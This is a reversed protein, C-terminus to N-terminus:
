EYSIHNLLKNIMSTKLTQDDRFQKNYYAERETKYADLKEEYRRSEKSSAKDFQSLLERRKDEVSQACDAKVKNLEQANHKLISQARKENAKARNLSNNLSTSREEFITNLKPLFTKSLALYLGVFTLTLWFVQSLYTSTDFPPFM